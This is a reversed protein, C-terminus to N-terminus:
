EALKGSSVYFYQTYMFSKESEHVELSLHKKVLITKHGDKIYKINLRVLEELAKKKTNCILHIHDHRTNPYEGRVHKFIIYGKKM